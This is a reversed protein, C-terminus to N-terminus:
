PAAAGKPVPTGRVTFAVAEPPPVVDTSGGFFLQDFWPLQEVTVTDTGM